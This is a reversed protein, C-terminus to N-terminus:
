YTSSAPKWTAATTKGLWAESSTAWTWGNILVIPYQDKVMQRPPSAFRYAGLRAGPLRILWALCHM